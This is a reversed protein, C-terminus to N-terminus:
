DIKHKPNSPSPILVILFIFERKICIEPPLNYLTLIVPWCSYSKRLIVNMHDQSFEPHLRDFHKWVEGNSPHCLFTPDRMHSTTGISSYLIKLRPILPFYWMKKVITKKEVGRRNTTMYRDTKCAFCKTITNNSNENYFLMCGKPCCYISLCGLGLNQVSKRAHYLNTVMINGKPMIEGMLQVMRNLLQVMRNLLQVM